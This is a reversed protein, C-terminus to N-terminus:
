LLLPVQFDAGNELPVPPKPVPPKTVPQRTVLKRTNTIGSMDGLSTNSDSRKLETGTFVSDDMTNETVGSIISPAATSRINAQLFPNEPKFSATKLTPKQFNFADVAIERLPARKQRRVNGSKGRAFPMGPKGKEQLTKLYRRRMWNARGLRQILAPTASPFLEQALNIDPYADAQSGNQTYLDDPFPDCLNPILKILCKVTRDVQSILESTSQHSALAKDSPEEEEGNAVTGEVSDSSDEM